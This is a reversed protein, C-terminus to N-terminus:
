ESGKSGSMFDNPRKLERDVLHCEDYAWALIEGKRKALAWQMAASRATWRGGEKRALEEPTVYVIRLQPDYAIAHALSGEALEPTDLPAASAAPRTQQPLRRV